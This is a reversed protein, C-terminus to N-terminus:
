IQKRELMIIDKPLLTFSTSVNSAGLLPPSYSKYDCISQCRKSNQQQFIGRAWGSAKIKEKDRMQMREKM